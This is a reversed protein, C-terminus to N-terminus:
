AAPRGRRALPGYGILAAALGLGWHLANEPLLLQLGLHFTTFTGLIALALYFVAFIQIFPVAGRRQFFGFGVGLLGTILHIVAHRPDLQLGVPLVDPPTDWGRAAYLGLVVLGQLVFLSMGRCYLVAWDRQTRPM